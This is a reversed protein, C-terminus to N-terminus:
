HKAYQQITNLLDEDSWPKNLYGSVGVSRAMERHKETSRSTVMVVPIHRTEQNARLHSTLELGNMRPMELDVLILTPQRHSLVKIAEFGDKATQAQMGMDGVFQALSRRVSLSDDVILVLPAQEERNQKEGTIKTQQRRLSALAKRSLNIGPLKQLDIVPSVTGDGIITAGIVGEPHHCFQNLPKIVLDQSAIIATVGIAIRSDDGKRVILFSSYSDDAKAEINTFDNLGFVPLREEEYYCYLADSNGHLQERQRYIVQEINHTAISLVGSDQRKGNRVLLAHATLISAPVTIEFCSGQEATASVTLQGRLAKIETQVADLGIGRGSTQSAKSRTSFSPLFILQSLFSEAPRENPDLMGMKLAKGKIAPYDLGQGDDQCRIAITEGSHEFSLTILGQTSKNRATRLAPEELGHDVANRLLHMIPDAIRNLVKSDMLLDGGEIRLEAEKSTLRAAQRVCRVFRSELTKVSVLRLQLLQDLNDQNLQKQTYGIGMLEAIQQGIHVVGEYSDATLELLQHSFSHLESYRELELPDLDGNDLSPMSGNLGTRIQVLAELEAAMSKIQKHYRDSQQVSTRLAALQAMIQTNAIQSEGAIRLLQEATTGPVHLRQGDEEDPMAALEANKIASSPLPVQPRTTNTSEAASLATTASQQGRLHLDSGVSTAPELDESRVANAELGAQMGRYDAHADTALGDAPVCPESHALLSEFNELESLDFALSADAKELGKSAPSARLQRITTLVSELVTAANDPAPGLGCLFETMTALCDSVDALLAGLDDSVQNLRHSRARELLDESYHMLNAVGVVGVVNAAGKITHAMRQAADLDGIVSSKLYAGISREFSSVQNPLEILLGDLLDPHVDEPVTLSVMDCDVSAPLEELDLDAILEGKSLQEDLKGRAKASLPLPWAPLSLFDLLQDNAPLQDEGFAVLYSSLEGAWNQRLAVKEKSGSSPQAALAQFNDHLLRCVAALGLLGSMNLASALQECEQACDQFANMQQDATATAVLETQQQSIDTLEGCLLSLIEHQEDTHM